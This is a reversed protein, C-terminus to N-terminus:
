PTAGPVSTQSPVPTSTATPSAIPTPTPKALSGTLEISEVLHRLVPAGSGAKADIDDASAAKGEPGETRLTFSPGNNVIASFEGAKINVFVRLNPNTCTAILNNTEVISIGESNTTTNLSCSSPMLFRVEATKVEAWALDLTNDSPLLAVRVESGRPPVATAVPSPTGTVQPRHTSTAPVATATATAEPPIVAAQTTPVATPSEVRAATIRAEAQNLTAQAQVLEPQATQTSANAVVQQQRNIIEQLKVLDTAPAAPDSSAKDLIQTTKTSLEMILSPPIIKGMAAQQEVERLEQELQAIDASVSTPNSQTAIYAFTAFVVALVVAAASLGGLAMPRVTAYPKPRPRPMSAAELLRRRANSWFPLRPPPVARLAEQASAGGAELLHARARFYFDDNPNAALAETVDKGAAFLLKQRLQNTFEPKPQSAFAQTVERGAAFLLRERASTRFEEDPTATYAMRLSLAQRFLPELEDRREPFASLCDAPSVGADYAALCEQLLDDIRDRSM